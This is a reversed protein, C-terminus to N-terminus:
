RIQLANRNSHAGSANVRTQRHALPRVGPADKNSGATAIDLVFGIDFSMM